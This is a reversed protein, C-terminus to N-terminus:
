HLHLCCLANGTVCIGLGRRQRPKWQSTHVEYVWLMIFLLVVVFRLMCIYNNFEIVGLYLQTGM